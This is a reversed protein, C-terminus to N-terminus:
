MRAEVERQIVDELDAMRALRALQQKAAQQKLVQRLKKLDQVSDKPQPVAKETRENRDTRAVETDADGPVFSIPEKVKDFRGQGGQERSSQIHPLFSRSSGVCSLRDAYSSLLEDMNQTQRENTVIIDNIISKRKNWKNKLAAIDILANDKRAPVSMHRNEGVKGGQLVERQEQIRKRALYTSFKPSNNGGSHPEPPLYRKQSSIFPM